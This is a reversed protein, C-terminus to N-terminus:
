FAAKLTVIFKSGTNFAADDNSPFFKEADEDTDIYRGDITVKSTLPYSLGINWTTYGDLGYDSEDLDQHGVAGSVTLKDTIGYSANAEYYYAPGTDLPFEPSYYFAGGVTLPGFARSGAVKAEWYDESNNPDRVYGYYILGLDFTIGLAEPKIGAYFDFEANTGDGFEVNSAWVGAYGIGYSTDAGGFFQPDGASQSIGRFIYENAVGVNFGLTPGSAEQAAAAGGFALTAVAACLALKISKM